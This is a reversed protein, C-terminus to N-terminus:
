LCKSFGSLQCAICGSQRVLSEQLCEPCIEGKEKTGDQIYKKLVRSIGRAFCNVSDSEGVKELQKVITYMDAGHRLSTSTLRTIAGEMETSCATVPSLELDSDDFIARYYGKRKRM